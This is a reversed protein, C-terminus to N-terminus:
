LISLFAAHVGCMTGTVTAWRVVMGRQTFEQVLCVARLFFKNHKYPLEKLFLCLFNLQTLSKVLALGQSHAPTAAAVQTIAAGGCERVARLAEVSRLTLEM